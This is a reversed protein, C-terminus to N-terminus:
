AAGGATWGEPRPRVILLAADPRSARLTLWTSIMEVDAPVGVTLAGEAAYLWGPEGAVVGRSWCHAVWDAGVEARRDAMLRSVGPMFAPLWSWRGKSGKETEGM